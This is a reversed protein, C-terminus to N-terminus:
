SLEANEVAEIVPPAIEPAVIVVGATIVDVTDVPVAGNEIVLEVGTGFRLMPPLAAVAVVAPLTVPVTAITLPPVPAVVDAVANVLRPAANAGSDAVVALRPPDERNAPAHEDVVVVTVPAVVAITTFVEGVVYGPSPINQSAYMLAAFVTIALTHADTAPVGVAEVYLM